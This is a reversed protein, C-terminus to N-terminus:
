MEVGIFCLNGADAVSDTVSLMRDLSEYSTKVKEIMYSLYKKYIMDGIIYLFHMVYLIM